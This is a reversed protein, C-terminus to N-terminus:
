LPCPFLIMYALPRRPNSPLDFAGKDPRVASSTAGKSAASPEEKTEPVADKIEFNPGQLYVDVNDDVRVITYYGEGPTLGEVLDMSGEWKGAGGDVGSAVTGLKIDPLYDVSKWLEVSVTKGELNSGKWSVPLSKGIAVPAIETLAATTDFTPATADGSGSPSPFSVCM